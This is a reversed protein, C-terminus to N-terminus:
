LTKKWTDKDYEAHTLVALINIVGIPYAIMTLLRYKNGGMNFVTVTSGSAVKVADAHPFTKRVDILNRWDAAETLQSWAQLPRAADPHRRAAQVLREMSTIRM